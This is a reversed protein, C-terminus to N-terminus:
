QEQLGPHDLLHSQQLAESDSHWYRNADAWIDYDKVM